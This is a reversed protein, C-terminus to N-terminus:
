CVKSSLPLCSSNKQKQEDEFSHLKQELVQSVGVPTNQLANDM